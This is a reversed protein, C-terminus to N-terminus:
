LIIKVGIQARFGYFQSSTPLAQRDPNSGKASQSGFYYDDIHNGINTLNAYCSVNKTIKQNLMLDWLSFTDYYQDFVSYRADLGEVTKAQYRYSVRTSFGKYDWGLIVNLIQEPQDQMPGSRTMYQQGNIPQPIFGSSDMGIQVSQFYPYKTKTQLLTYNVDLVFGKFIGPLYWFSTQWSFELGSVYAKETNNFPLNTTGATKMYFQDYYEAGLIRSDLDAPGGVIFGKKSPKYGNMTFILDSIEKYFGYVTFLGIRDNKVSTGLDFNWATSPFLYPNNSIIYNGTIPYIVLPSIERFSPRSTSKYVAGQITIADTVKFKMNLSPFWKTNDTKTNVYEPNEDIGTIGSNQRIHYAFYETNYKEVRVGPLLMLKSGINLESMVYAAGVKETAEYDRIYSEVGKIFYKYDKDGTYYEDQMDTLLDIDASWGLDYRGNLFEGPDYNNDVFNHASIGRQSNIDTTIWPFLDLMAQGRLVMGGWEFSSYKATGDSTRTLQHYKGGLKLKGSITNFLSFALEYDFKVDYSKDTLSQNAINLERLYTDEIKLSDPGGVESMIERPQRYVLSNQNLNYNNAEVFPFSQQNENAEAYTTSLDVDIKSSGFHFTNQLTHTRTFTEWFAEIVNLEFNAPMGSVNFLYRNNRTVVDDDKQNFLNFFKVSWWDNHYDLILSGNNRTRTQQQDVFGVNETRTNLSSDIIAGSENKAFAWYAPSYTGSFQQSPMEKREHDVRLNVGLKKNFFRDSFGATIKYNGFSKNLNAYGGELNIEIQRKGPAEMLRLNVTGGLADADMDPRLSKLVEVGSLMESQVMSLDVSRDFDSTSAMKIGEITVNSYKPSLGRIVIKDAEGSNRKLSIGPLRGISEAANADPLEQMKESSIVNAVTNAALQQNIAARQGRVQATVVVEEVQTSLVELNIDITQTQGATIEVTIKQEKYGLYSITITRSGAPVNSLFYEGKLDSYTGLYNEKIIIGAGPLKDGTRADTVVGKITGTGAASLVCPIGSVLLVLLALKKM